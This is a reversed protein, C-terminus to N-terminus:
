IREDETNETPEPTSTEDFKRRWSELTTEETRQVDDADQSIGKKEEATEEHPAADDCTWAFRSLACVAGTVWALWLAM